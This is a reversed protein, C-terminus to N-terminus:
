LKKEATLERLANELNKYQFQFGQELLRRPYVKQGELVISAVEGFLGRLVFGPIPLWFPRQIVKGLLRGFIEQSVPQPATLNYVGHASRTSILFRIAEAEDKIHIWSLIQKGSGMSGGTFFRFPLLLRPFAGGERSLVVGTRIVVRRVGIDEVPQTSNEWKVCVGALFDNGVPASEDFTQTESSGYYGIASSQVLVEPKHKAAKLADSLAKGTKIRSEVIQKRREASWRQPFFRDGAINEGTLNVVADVKELWEQWGDEWRIVQVGSSLSNTKQRYRSLIIVEDGAKNLVDTLTRGILGTGGLIMVRM